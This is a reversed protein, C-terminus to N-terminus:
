KAQLVLNVEHADYELRAKVKLDDPFDVRSFRGTVGRAAKVVLYRKGPKYNTALAEIHLVGSLTAKGNVVLLQGSDQLNVSIFTRGGDLALNEVFLQNKGVFLTGANYLRGASVVDDANPGHTFLFNVQGGARNIINAKEATAHRLFALKGGNNTVVMHDASSEDTFLAEGEEAIVLRAKGGSATDTLLLSGGKGVRIDLCSSTACSISATERLMLESGNKVVFLHAVSVNNSIGGGVVRLAHGSLDFSYRPATRKFLLQVVRSDDSFTLDFTRAGPAFRAIGNPVDEASGSPPALSYWNSMGGVIGDNWNSGRVGHWFASDAHGQGIGLLLVGAAATLAARATQVNM